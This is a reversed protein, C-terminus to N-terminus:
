VCSVELFDKGRKKLNLDLIVQIHARMAMEPTSSM